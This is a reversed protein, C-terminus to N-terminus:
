GTIKALQTRLRKDSVPVLTKLEQAFVAVRYEQVMWFLEEYAEAVADDSDAGQSRLEEICRVWPTVSRLMQEDKQPGSSRMRSLRIEMARIYRPICWLWQTPTSLVYDGRTLVKLQAGLDDLTNKWAVPHKSDVLSKATLVAGFVKSLNSISTQVSELGRDTISMLCAEFDSKSRLIPKNDIGAIMGARAFMAGQVEDPTLGCAAANVAMPSFGPMQQPRIRLESKLALGLLLGQGARTEREAVWRSTRVRLNVSAGDVVMTPYGLVKRGHDEFEIQEDFSELNWSKLGDQHFDGAAEDVAKHTQEKFEEKIARLDRGSALLKGKADLVVIRPALYEPIQDGRFQDARITVGAKASLLSALQSEISGNGSNLIPALEEALAPADFQRRFQKPLSRILSELREAIYGPVSWDLVDRSLHPLDEVRVRISVGDTDEGPQFRYSLGAHRSGVAVSDPHSKGSVNADQALILDGERMLLISGHEKAWKEFRQGNYVDPPVRADYFQHIAQHDAVLDGRRAKDELTRLKSILQRNKQVEPCKSNMEGEVLAHHLFLDRSEVPAIPGYHVSRRPVIDLGYLSVREDAIVRHNKEDWRPNSHSRQILHTAADEIWKPQIRAVTRAYVKTTRVIEGAMVWDPRSEFVSSGPIISFATGRTGKYEHRDGKSGINTLLGTLLARHVADPDTHKVDPHLKMELCMGRLQRYVERWEDIRRVALYAAECARGLKRRTLDKHQQHYWDWINLFSLFDSGNEAFQEHAEDALQQKDHPRVRPDQTSLVSAIILVDNLCNEEEGAFIMRAVRPDVPLRAMRKGVPTLKNNEDIAGLEHLTEYGDRWQRGDPRDLFPFETPEGLGLDIMQLIVSALNSRLLEPQTFEDRGAYDTEEYLRICVGPAVRGCRGARQNASAQSIPEIQLGHLKTRPNYRKLRAVGPDVVGRINPVTISTEAVNTAIVVRSGASRGAKFVRQQETPSLRAYLPLIEIDHPLFDLKKLEHATQRIEREGPMFVLVDGHGENVLQAAAYSAAEPLPTGDQVMSADHRQEVPYMRGSVEIIPAPGTSNGFHEAFRDADITASTIIVKLDKRKTVLRHLYGMLFDINLSREHAEDVIITDYKRLEPDSRTEALLIGDTMVKILTDDNTQDGFRMKYGVASGLGVGLEDAVRAAVNRAAIRRPQTHGIMGDVGRGLDLCIKPLQTTKGSGTEGCLIVVQHDRIAASIEERHESVPLDAPYSCVPVNRLRRQYSEIAKNLDERISTEIKVVSRGDKRRKELGRIRARFLGRSSSPAQDVLEHLKPEQDAV